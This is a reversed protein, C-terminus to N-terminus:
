ELVQFLNRNHDVRRCIRCTREGTDREQPEAFPAGCKTCRRAVLRLETRRPRALREVTIAAEECIDVCLGCGTCNGAIIRYSWGVGSTGDMLLARHRCIRVCAECATCRTGDIAPVHLSLPGEEVPAPAPTAAPKNGLGLFATFLERRELHPLGGPRDNGSLDRHWTDRDLRRVLIPESGRDEALARFEGVADDLRRGVGRPCDDCAVDTVVITRVSNAHLRALDRLGLAHLCPMVAEDATVGARECAGYAHDGGAVARVALGRPLSLAEEPCAPLCLGCGDCAETDLGLGEESLLWADRPCADVCARCSALPSRAHVCRGGDCDPLVLARAGRLQEESPM